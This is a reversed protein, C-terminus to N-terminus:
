APNLELLQDILKIVHAHVEEPTCLNVYTSTAFLYEITFRPTPLKTGHFFVQVAGFGHLEMRDGDGDTFQYMPMACSEDNHYTWLSLGQENFWEDQCAWGALCYITGCDWKSCQRPKDHVANAPHFSSSRPTVWHDMWLKAPDISMAVRKLNTLKEHPTPTSM